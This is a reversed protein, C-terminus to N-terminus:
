CSSLLIVFVSPWSSLFFSFLKTLLFYCIIWHEMWMHLFLKFTMDYCHMMIVISIVYVHCTKHGSMWSLFIFLYIFLFIMKTQETITETENLDVNLQYLIIEQKRINDNHMGNWYNAIDRLSVSYHTIRMRMISSNKFKEKQLKCLSLLM